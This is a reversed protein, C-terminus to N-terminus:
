DSLSRAFRLNILCTGIGNHGHDGVDGSRQQEAAIRARWVHKQPNLPAAIADSLRQRDVASLSFTIGNRM